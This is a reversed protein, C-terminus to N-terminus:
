KVTIKLTLPTLTLTVTLKLSSTRPQYSKSLHTHLSLLKQVFKFLIVKSTCIQCLPEDQCERLWSWLDPDFTLTRPWLPFHGGRQNLTFTFNSFGTGTVHLFHLGPNSVTSLYFKFAGCLPRHLISCPSKLKLYKVCQLTIYHVKCSSTYLSHDSCLAPSNSRRDCFSM